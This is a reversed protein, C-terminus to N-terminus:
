KGLESWRHIPGFCVRFVVKEEYATRDIGQADFLHQLDERLFDM